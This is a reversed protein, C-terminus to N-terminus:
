GNKEDGKQGSKFSNIARNVEGLRKHFASANKITKDNLEATVANLQRIVEAAVLKSKAIGESLKAPEMKKGALLGIENFRSACVDMMYSGLQPTSSFCYWQPQVEMHVGFSGDDETVVFVRETATGGTTRRVEFGVNLINATRTPQVTVSLFSPAARMPKPLLNQQEDTRGAQLTGKEGFRQKVAQVMDDWAKEIAVFDSELETLVRRGDSFLTPAVAIRDRDIYYAQYHVRAVAEAAADPTRAPRTASPGEGAGSDPAGSDSCNVVCSLLLFLAAHIALRNM